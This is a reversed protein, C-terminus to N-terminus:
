FRGYRKSCEPCYWKKEPPVIIGVCKFHFWENHCYPADCGIMESVDDHPSQCVCYLRNDMNVSAATAAPPPPPAAREFVKNNDEAIEMKGESSDSSSSAVQNLALSQRMKDLIKSCEPCYWKEEPPVIIGVCEFHFMEIGCDPADCIIMESVDDYPLQCICYLRNDMNVFAATAAPPPPPSAAREFVKNNDEAIEMEGESSDSSSSAVQNLTLSQRMKNLIKSCEPCYWKEEPPVMIGVCEFHFWEICCDPADCIIMESVDDYPLQCVCYLRNDMNCSGHQLQLSTSAPKPQLPQPQAQPQSPPRSQQKKRKLTVKSVKQRSFGTIHQQQQKRGRGRIKVIRARQAASLTLNQLLPAPKPPPAPLKIKLKLTSLGTIQQQHKPGRGWTNIIRARQTASLTQTQLLPAPKPPPAPLKIKLKLTSLGTIQQQQKPGRGWTNIIRARHTAGLTQTQLLPAPKPPPAPLKIKLKLTGPKKEAVEEMIKMKM